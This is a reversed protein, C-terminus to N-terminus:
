EYLKKNYTDSLDVNRQESFKMLTVYDVKQQESLKMMNVCHAKKREATLFM